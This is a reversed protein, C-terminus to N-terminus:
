LDTQWVTVMTRPLDLDAPPWQGKILREDFWVDPTGSTGGLVGRRTVISGFFTGNGQADWTGSTYIVGYWNIDQSIPIGQDDRATSTTYTFTEGTVSTKTATQAPANPDITSAGTGTTPYTLNVYEEGSDWAKNGNADVYPEGPPVLVRSVGDSGIGTQRLNSANLFILGGGTWDDSGALSVEDTLNAGNPDPELGDATDFFYLGGRNGKTWQAFTKATGSGSELFNDGSGTWVFYHADGFGSQAVQKWLDYDFEPCSVVSHQILNSNDDPWTVPVYDYPKIAQGTATNPDLPPDFVGGTIMKFWPDALTTGTRVKIYGTVADSLLLGSIISNQTEWPVSEPARSKLQAVSTSISGDLVATTAGWHVAFAGNTSLGQCSQLPGGPGPYPAENLVMKVVRESTRRSAPTTIWTSGVKAMNRFKAATVKVTAIGYRTPTGNVVIVPPAYIDIRQIRGTNPQDAFLSANIQDLLDVSGSTNPDLSNSQLIMDPGAESGMYAAKSNGRYPKDFFSLYATANPDVTFGQRFYPRGSSGDATVDATNPDDDHDFVRQTRDYYASNRVDYANLFKFTVANPDSPAGFVPRDFLAKVMKAGGEATFLLQDSDRQNQAILNETDAMFLYSLGLLTLIVMVLLTILLASGREGDVRARM